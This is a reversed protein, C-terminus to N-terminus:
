KRRSFRKPRSGIKIVVIGFVILLPGALVAGYIGGGGGGGQVLEMGTIFAGFVFVFAGIIVTVNLRMSTAACVNCNSVNQIIM